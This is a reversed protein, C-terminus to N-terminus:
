SAMSEEKEEEEEELRIFGSKAAINAQFDAEEPSLSSLYANIKDVDELL